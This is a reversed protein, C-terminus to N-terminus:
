WGLMLEFPLMQKSIRLDWHDGASVIEFTSNDIQEKSQSGFGSSGNTGSIALINLVSLSFYVSKALSHVRFYAIHHSIPPCFVYFCGRFCVLVVVYSFCFILFNWWAPEKKRGGGQFFFMVFRTQCFQFVMWKFFDRGTNNIKMKSILLVCM